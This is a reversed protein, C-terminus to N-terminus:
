PNTTALMSAKTRRAPDQSTNWRASYEKASFRYHGCRWNPEVADPLFEASALAVVAKPIENWCRDLAERAASPLALFEAALLEPRELVDAELHRLSRCEPDDTRVAGPLRGNEFHQRPDESRIPAHAADRTADASEDFDGGPKMGIQGPALIDEELARHHAH